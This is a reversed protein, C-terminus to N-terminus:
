ILFGRQQMFDVPHKKWKEQNCTATLLQMNDDTNSGGLAIPMIHDMHYDDGLPRKCCACKGRQLKFLKASLNASLAGGNSRKRARRNHAQIRMADPNKAYWAKRNENARDKNASRWDKMKETNQKPRMPAYLKHKISKCARCFPDIGDKRSADKTFDSFQKETKCKSCTKM